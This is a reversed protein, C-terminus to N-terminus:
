QEQENAPKDERFGLVLYKLIFYVVWVGVFFPFGHSFGYDLSVQHKIQFSIDSGMLSFEDYYAWLGVCLFLLTSVVWALRALRRCAKFMTVIISAIGLFLFGSFMWYSYPMPSAVAIGIIGLLLITPIYKRM